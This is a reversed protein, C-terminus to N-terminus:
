NGLLRLLSRKSHRRAEEELNQQEQIIAALIERARQIRLSEELPVVIAQLERNGAGITKVAEAIKMLAGAVDTNTECAEGCHGCYFAQDRMGVREGCHECCLSIHVGESKM